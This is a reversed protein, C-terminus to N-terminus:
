VINKILIELPDQPLIERKKDEDLFRIAYEFIPKSAKMLHKDHGLEHNIQHNRIHGLEHCMMGLLITKNSLRITRTYVNADGKRFTLTKTLKLTSNLKFRKNIKDFIKIAEDKNLKMRYHGYYKMQEMKYYDYERSHKM